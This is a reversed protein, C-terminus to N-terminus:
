WKAGGNIHRHTLIKYWSKIKFRSAIYNLRKFIFEDTFHTKKRKVTDGTKTRSIPIIVISIGEFRPFSNKDSQARTRGETVTLACPLLTKNM